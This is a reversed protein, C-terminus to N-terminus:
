GPHDASVSQHSWGFRLQGQVVESPRGLGAGEGSVWIRPAPGSGVIGIEDAVWGAVVGMQGVSGTGMGVLGEKGERGTNRDHDTGGAQYAPIKVGESANRYWTCEDVRLEGLRNLQPGVSNHPFSRLHESPAGLGPPRAESLNTRTSPLSIDMASSNEATQLDPTAFPM